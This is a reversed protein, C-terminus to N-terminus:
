GKRWIIRVVPISLYVNSFFRGLLLALVAAIVGVMNFYFIGISLFITIVAVEIGTSKIIAKTYKAAVLSAQLFCVGVHLFPIIFIIRTPTLSFDTLERTLGSIYHFWITSLPAFAIVSLAGTAFLGLALAFNKLKHFNKFKDGMLAIGVDQFSWGFTFFIGILGNIVPLVALSEIPYRSRGMFFTVLPRIGLSLMSSSALPTYFRTIEKYTLPKEHYADVKGLQLQHVIKRVMYRSATAEALVGASLAAAGVHAGPIDFFIYFVLATVAMMTLRVVTGYSVKRTLNNRILIGQYFRRYGIAAPWLILIMCAIHTIRSIDAHLGIIREMMFQFIPPILLVLMLVTIIANLAYTFNRLKIFSTKDKVLANSASMIMIIPSEFFMAISYALGFAALNFKPYSLRAIVAALFPAEAMMMILTALLPLWFIIIDKYTLTNKNFDM